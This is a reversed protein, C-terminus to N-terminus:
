QSPSEGHNHKSLSRHGIVLEQVQVLSLGDTHEYIIPSDVNM